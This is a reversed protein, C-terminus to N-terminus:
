HGASRLQGDVFDELRQWVLSRVAPLELMLEHRAEPYLHIVGRSLHRLFFASANGDVVREDGALHVSVPIKIAALVDPNASFAMCSHYAARAWGFSPGTVQLEPNQTFLNFQVQYGDADRTLVNNPHFQRKILDDQRFFLPRKALGLSCVVDLLFRMLGGPKLPPMVMPACLMLANVKPNTYAHRLALHGGMSHGFVLLPQDGDHFGSAAMVADLASLHQSFDDCHVLKPFNPSLRQSLGQSPWDLCLVELGMAAFRDIQDQHKEIFETFGPLVMVRGRQTTTAPTVQYRIQMDHTTITEFPATM